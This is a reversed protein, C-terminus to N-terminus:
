KPWVVDNSSLEVRNEGRSIAIRKSWITVIGTEDDKDIGILYYDDPKLNPAEAEGKYDTNMKSVKANILVSKVKLAIKNGKGDARKESEAWLRLLKMYLQDDKNDSPYPIAETLLEDLQRTTLFFESALAPRQSGDPLQVKAAMRLTGEDPLGKEYPSPGVRIPAVVTTPASTPAPTTPAPAPPEVSPPEVPVPQDISPLLPVSPQVVVPEPEVVVPSPLAITTGAAELDLLQPLPELPPSDDLDPLILLPEEPEIEQAISEEEVSADVPDDEVPPENPEAPPPVSEPEDIWSFLDFPKPYFLPSRGGSLGFFPLGMEDVDVLRLPSDLRPYEDVDPIVPPAFVPEEGRATLSLSVLAISLRLTLSFCRLTDAMKNSRNM